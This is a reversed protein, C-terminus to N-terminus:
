DEVVGLIDDEMVILADLHEGDFDVSVPAGVYKQLVVTDAVEVDEHCRTGVALVLAFLSGEGDITDPIIISSSTPREPDMRKVLYRPGHPKLMLVGQILHYDGYVTRKEAPTQLMRETAYTWPIHVNHKYPTFHGEFM